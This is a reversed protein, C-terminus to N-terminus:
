RKEDLLDRTDHEAGLCDERGVWLGFDDPNFYQFKYSMILRLYSEPVVNM